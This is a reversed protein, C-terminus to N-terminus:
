RPVTVRPWVPCCPGNRVSGIVTSPRGIQGIPGSVEAHQTTRARHFKSRDQRHVATLCTDNVVGNPQDSITVSDPIIVVPQLRDTSQEARGVCPGGCNPKRSTRSQAANGALVKGAM